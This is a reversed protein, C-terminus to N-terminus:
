AASDAESGRGLLLSVGAILEWATIPYVSLREVLGGGAAALAAPFGLALLATLGLLGLPLGIWRPGALRSGLIIALNGGGIALLAGLLHLSGVPAPITEPVLGVLQMGASHAAALALFFSTRDPRAPRALLIAGLLFLLGDAVFAANMVGHLPSSVMRGHFVGVAPAGLDSIWNRAYSYAPATWGRAAVAEGALYVCGAALVSVGAGLRMVRNM